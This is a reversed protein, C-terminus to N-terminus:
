IVTKNLQPNKFVDLSEIIYNCFNCFEEKNSQIFQEINSDIYIKNVQDRFCRETRMHRPLKCKQVGPKFCNPCSVFNNMYNERYYKSFYEKHKSADTKPGPKGRVKPEDNIPKTRPRGRKKPIIDQTNTTIEENEKDNLNDM